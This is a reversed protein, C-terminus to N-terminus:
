RIDVKVLKIVVDLVCQADVTIDSVHIVKDDQMM